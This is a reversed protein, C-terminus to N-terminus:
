VHNSSTGIRTLTGLGLASCLPNHARTRVLEIFALGSCLEAFLGLLKCCPTENAPGSVSQALKKKIVSSQETCQLINILM